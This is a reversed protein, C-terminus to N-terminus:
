MSLYLVNDIRVLSAELAISAIQPEIKVILVEEYAETMFVGALEKNLVDIICM